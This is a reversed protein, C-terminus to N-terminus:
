QKTQNQKQKFIELTEQHIKERKKLGFPFKQNLENYYQTYLEMDNAQACFNLISGFHKPEFRKTLGVSEMESLIEKLFASSRESTSPAYYDALLGLYPEVSHIGKEKMLRIFERRDEIPQKKTQMWSAVRSYDAETSNPLKNLLEFARRFDGAIARVKILLADCEPDNTRKMLSFIEEAKKVDGLAAAAKLANFLMGESFKSYDAKSLLWQIKQDDKTAMYYSIFTNWIVTNKPDDLMKELPELLPWLVALDTKQDSMYAKAMMARVLPLEFADKFEEQFVKLDDKLNKRVCLSAFNAWASETRLKENTKLENYIRKVDMSEVCYSKSNFYKLKEEFSEGYHGNFIFEKMLQKAFSDGRLTEAVSVALSLIKKEKIRQTRIEEIVKEL